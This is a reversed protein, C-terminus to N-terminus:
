KKMVNGKEVMFAPYYSLKAKRLGEAGTDEERNIYKYESAVHEIFQQNIMPYAGQVHSFAKEIHVVFTEKNCEEGLTFAVVEKSVRILGGILNLEKRMKLANITVCFEQHKEDLDDCLNLEKWKDAMIICDALNEDSIEEYSWNENVIKFKNIHNRKGHLKKGALTILKESEYVYDAIDRNYEITFTNPYLEELEEFMNELVLHMHFPANEQEFFLFLEEIVSKLHSKGEEDKALPFTISLGDDKSLFVLMDQIIAYRIEYFPAWLFNNAFTYECNNPQEFTYYQDFLEKEKITVKEWKIEPM